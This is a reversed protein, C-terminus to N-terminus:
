LSVQRVRTVLVELPDKALLQAISRIIAAPGVDTPSTFRFDLRGSVEVVEFGSLRSMDITRTGRKSSVELTVLKSFENLVRTLESRDAHWAECDCLYVCAVIAKGISPDGEGLCRGDFVKIGVPLVKNLSDVLTEVGNDVQLVMDVYEELSAMGVAAPPGFSLQEHPHFGESYALSLDARRCARRLLRAMELHSLWRLDGSKSYRFRVKQM